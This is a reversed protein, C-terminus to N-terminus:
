DALQRKITQLDKSTNLLFSQMGTSDGLIADVQEKVSTALHLARQVLKSNEIAMQRDKEQCSNSQKMEEILISMKTEIMSITTEHETVRSAIQGIGM